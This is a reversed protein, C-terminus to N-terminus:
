RRKASPAVTNREIAAPLVRRKKARAARRRRASRARWASCAPRSRGRCRRRKRWDRTHRRRLASEAVPQEAGDALDGPDLIFRQEIRHGRDRAAARGIHEQQDFAEGFRADRRAQGGLERDAQRPRGDRARALQRPKRGLIRRLQAAVDGRGAARGSAASSTSIASSPSPAASAGHWRRRWACARAFERVLGIQISQASAARVERDKVPSSACPSLALPRLPRGTLGCSRRIAAASAKGRAPSAASEADGLDGLRGAQRELLGVGDGAGLVAIRAASGGRISMAISAPPTTLPSEGARGATRRASAASRPEAVMGRLAARWEARCHRRDRRQQAHQGPQQARHAPRQGSGAQGGRAAAPPEGAADDPRRDRQKAPTKGPRCGRDRSWWPSARDLAQALDLLQQAAETGNCRPRVDGRGPRLNTRQLILPCDGKVLLTVAAMNTMTCHLM